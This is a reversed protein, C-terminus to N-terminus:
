PRSEAGALSQEANGSRTLTLAVIRRCDAGRLAAACASLTAGTTLVDDVLLVREPVEGAVRVRPPDSTRERRTRGVQRPGDSRALCPSLPLGGLEAAAIALEEAPDFGRWRRRSPGAPVPVVAGPREATPLAELMASAAIRALSLSHGYKLGHVIRRAVGEFQAAAVALDVGPPPPAILAAPPSLERECAPCLVAVAACARGCAPCRPPAVLSAIWAVIPTGM